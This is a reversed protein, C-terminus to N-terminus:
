VCVCNRSVSQSSFSFETSYHTQVNKALRNLALQLNSNEKVGTIESQYGIAPSPNLDILERPGVKLVYFPKEAIYQDLESQITPLATRMLMNFQEKDAGYGMKLQTMPLNVPLPLFNIAVEPLGSQTLLNKVTSLTNLDATWVVASYNNFVNTGPTQSGTTGLKRHNLSDSLSAFVMETDGPRSALYQAFSFYRMEAPTRFILVVAENQNMQFNLNALPTIPDTFAPFGYPSSPNNGYCIAGPTTFCKAVDFYEWTGVSQNWTAPLQNLFRDGISQVQLDIALSKDFALFQLAFFILTKKLSIQIRRNFSKLM